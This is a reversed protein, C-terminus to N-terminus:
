GSQTGCGDKIEKVSANLEKIYTGVPFDKKVSALYNLHNAIVREEKQMQIQKQIDLFKDRNGSCREKEAQEELQEITVM